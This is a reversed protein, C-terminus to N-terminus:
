WTSRYYYLKTDCHGYIIVFIGDHDEDYESDIGIDLIMDLFIWSDYDVM